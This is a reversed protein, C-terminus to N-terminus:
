ETGGTPGVSRQSLAVNRAKVKERIIAEITAERSDATLHCADGILEVQGRSYEFHWDPDDDWLLAAVTTLQDILEDTGPHEGSGNEFLHTRSRVAESVTPKANVHSAASKPEPAVRSATEDIVDDGEPSRHKPPDSRDRKYHWCDGVSHDLAHAMEWYAYDGEVLAGETTGDAFPAPWVLSYIGEGDAYISVLLEQQRHQAILEDRHEPSIYDEVPTVLHRGTV